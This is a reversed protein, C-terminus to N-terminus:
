EAQSSTPGEDSRPASQPLARKIFVEVCQGAGCLRFATQMGTLQPVDWPVVQPVYGYFRTLLDKLWPRALLGWPDWMVSYEILAGAHDKVKGALNAESFDNIELIHLPKSVYGMEPRRLAGALPFVTAITTNPLVAEAYQAAQQDLAVFTTWALNNELPFPYPPNVVCAALLAMTLGLAVPRRLKPALSWIAAAFTAYLIPLVPLLYRELVAGGMATILVVHLGVFAFVVGWSGSVRWRQRRLWWVLAATGIVHGSGVLLYYSRRLLALGLRVPNLPYFVNYETFAANGFWHGTASRLVTLWIVLPILPLTFLMATDFRRRRLLLFGFLAPAVVSTEKALVAACCVAACLAFRDELYLVLAVTTLLMAPMDLQAMVAQSFFLPCCFLLFTSLGAPGTQGTLTRTLRWQAVLACAALLVMAVRTSEISYGVVKWVLALYAMVLPPHVNPVTTYPVWALRHFIDLAAPVFQGLEDWYFPLHLFPFHTILLGALAAGWALAARPLRGM